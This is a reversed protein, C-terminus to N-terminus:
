DGASGKSEHEESPDLRIVWQPHGEPSLTIDPAPVPDDGTEIWGRAECRDCLHRKARQSVLDLEVNWQGYGHCDPCRCDLAGSRPRPSLGHFAHPDAPGSCTVIRKEHAM